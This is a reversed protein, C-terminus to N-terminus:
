CLMKHCRLNVFVHRCRKPIVDTFGITLVEPRAILVSAPWTLLSRSTRPQVGVCDTPPPLDITQRQVVNRYGPVADHWEWATDVASLVHISRGRSIALALVLRVTHGTVQSTHLQLQRYQDVYVWVHWHYMVASSSSTRSSRATSVDRSRWLECCLVCVM